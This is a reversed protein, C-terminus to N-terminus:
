CRKNYLKMVGYIWFVRLDTSHADNLALISCMAEIYCLLLLVVPSVKSKRWNRTAAQEVPYISNISRAMIKNCVGKSEYMLTFILCLTSRTLKWTRCTNLCELLRNRCVAIFLYEYKIAALVIKLNLTRFYAVLPM